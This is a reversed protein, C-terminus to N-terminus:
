TILLQLDNRTLLECKGKHYSHQRTTDSLSFLNWICIAWYSSLPQVAVLMITIDANRYPEM